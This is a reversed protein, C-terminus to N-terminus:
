RCSCSSSGAPARASRAPWRGSRRCCESCPSARSTSPAGASNPSWSASCCPLLIAFVFPSQSNGDLAASPVVLLPWTFALLGAIAAVTLMTASVRDIRTSM